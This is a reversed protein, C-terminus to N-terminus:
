WCVYLKAGTGTRKAECKARGYLAEIIDSHYLENPFSMVCNRKGEDALKTLYPIATQEVFAIAQEKKLSKQKAYYANARASLDIKATTTTTTTMYIM